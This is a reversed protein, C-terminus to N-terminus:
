RWMNSVKLVFKVNGIDLFKIEVKCFDSLIEIVLVPKKRFFIATKRFM